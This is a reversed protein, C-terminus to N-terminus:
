DSGFLTNESFLTYRHEQTQPSNQTKNGTNQLNKTGLLRESTRSLALAM